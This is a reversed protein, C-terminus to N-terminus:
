STSAAGPKSMSSEAVMVISRFFGPLLGSGYASPTMRLSVKGWYRIPHGVRKDSVEGGAGGPYSPPQLVKPVRAPSTPPYPAIAAGPLVGAPGLPLRVVIDENLNKQAIFIIRADVKPQFSFPIIPYVLPVCTPIHWNLAKDALVSVCWSSESESFSWILIQFYILCCFQLYLCM